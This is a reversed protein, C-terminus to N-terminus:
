PQPILSPTTANAVFTPLPSPNELSCISIFLTQSSVTYLNKPSTKYTYYSISRICFQSVDRM